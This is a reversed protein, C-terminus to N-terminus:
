KWFFKFFSNKPTMMLVVTALRPGPDSGAASIEEGCDMRSCRLIMVAFLVDQGGAEHAVAMGNIIMWDRFSIAPIMASALM